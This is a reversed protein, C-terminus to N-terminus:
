HIIMTSDIHRVFRQFLSACDQFRAGCADLMLLAVHWKGADPCGVGTSM